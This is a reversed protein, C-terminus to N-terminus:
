FARAVEGMYERYGTSGGGVDDKEANKIVISCKCADKQWPFPLWKTACSRYIEKHVVITATATALTDSQQSMMINHLREILM